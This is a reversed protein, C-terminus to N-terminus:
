SSLNQRTNINAHAHFAVGLPQVALSRGGRGGDGGVATRFRAKKGRLNESQCDAIAVAAAFAVDHKHVAILRPAWLQPSCSDASPPSPPPLPPPSSSSPSPRSPPLLRARRQAVISPSQYAGFVRAMIASQRTNSEATVRFCLQM